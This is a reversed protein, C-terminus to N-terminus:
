KWLADVLEERNLYIKNILEYYGLQISLDVMFPLNFGLRRLIKEEKLVALTKGEIAIRGNNMLVFLYEGYLVDEIDSVVNILVIDNEKLFEVFKQKYKKDLWKFLDDLALIRPKIALYSIIKVITRQRRNMLKIPMDLLDEIEFSKILYDIQADIMKLSFGYNSLIFQLEEKLTEYNFIDNDLVLAFDRDNKTKKKYEFTSSKIDVEGKYSVLGAMIKLLTTKGCGNPGIITYSNNDVMLLDLENFVNKKDYSYSIKNLSIIDM